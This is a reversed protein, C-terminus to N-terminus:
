GRVTLVPCPAHAVVDYAVAREVRTAVPALVGLGRVGLVILDAGCRNAVALIQASPEGHEVTPEPRCWLEADKPVLEELRHIVEAVSPGTPRAQKGPKPAPLVHLLILRSQNEQALSVAYPGAVKAIDNLKTAFLVCHFRGGNHAGCKIGPGISLVPVQTRRFVEEASSGLLMKKVGTRGHTGLAILDVANEQLIRSLVEWVSVGREIITEHAMGALAAAVRAMETNALEEEADLVAAAADAALAAYTSPTVVHVATVKSGYARAIMAAFPLAEASPESFDTLFLINRLAIRQTSRAM